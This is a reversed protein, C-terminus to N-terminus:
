GGAVPPIIAIEDGCGVDADDTAYSHNIAVASRNLLATLAPHQVALQKRLDAVTSASELRVEVQPSNLIERAQAFLRVAIIMEQSVM